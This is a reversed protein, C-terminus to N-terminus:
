RQLQIHLSAGRRHNLKNKDTTTTTVFRTGASIHISIFLSLYICRYVRSLPSIYRRAELYQSQGTKVFATKNTVNTMFTKAPASRGSTETNGEEKKNLDVGHTLAVM